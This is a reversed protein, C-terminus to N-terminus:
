ATLKACQQPRLRGSTSPRPNLKRVKCFQIVQLMALHKGLLELPQAIQVRPQKPPIMALHKRNVGRWLRPIGVYSLEGCYVRNLIKTPTAALRTRWTIPMAALSLRQAIARM